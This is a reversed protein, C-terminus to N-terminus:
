GGAHAVAASRSRRKSLMGGVAALVAVLIIYGFILAPLPWVPDGTPGDGGYTFASIAVGVALFPGTILIAVLDRRRGFDSWDLETPTSALQPQRALWIALVWGAITATASIAALTTVWGSVDPRLDWSAPTYTLLFGAQTATMALWPWLPVFDGVRRVRGHSVRPGPKAQWFAEKAALVAIM